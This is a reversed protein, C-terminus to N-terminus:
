PGPETSVRILRDGEQLREVVDQGELVRGFSTYQGDLHPAPGHMIFFQSGETDPGASAMGIVGREFPLLTPETRIQFGPGGMGYAGSVDGGQAVFTPVIRHFPSGDLRGEAALELMTLATLPAAGPMLEVTVEGAETELLLRPSPGWGELADWDPTHRAPVRPLPLGGLPAGLAELAGRISTLSVASGVPDLGEGAERLRDAAGLAAFVSDALLGTAFVALAPDGSALAAELGAYIRPVLEPDVRDSGWRQLLGELARRAPAGGAEIAELAATVGPAGPLMVLAAAGAARARENEPPVESLWRRALRDDGRSTSAALLPFVRHVDEPHRTVWAEMRTFDSETPAALTSIATAAAVGVHPAPDDIAVFLAEKVRADDVRGTLGTAAAHRIRWDTAEALWFLLRPTDNPDGLRSVGTVLAIAAPDDSAYGDLATRVRDAFSSWPRAVAMRGFYWSANLRTAADPSALGDVLRSFSETSATNALALRGLALVVPAEEDPTAPLAVLGQLAVGGGGKGLAEITRHRVSPPQDGALAALLGEALGPNQLQGLAFAAAERVPASPDDLLMGQLADAAAAFRVAGLGLAAQRRVDDDADTLLALLAGGQRALTHEVVRQLDPRGTLREASFTPDTETACATLAWGLSLMLVLRRTPALTM